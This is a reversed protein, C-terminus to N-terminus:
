SQAKQETSAGSMARNLTQKAKLRLDPARTKVNATAIIRLGTELEIGCTVLKAREARLGDREHSVDALQQRLADYDTASVFKGGGSRSRPTMEGLPKYAQGAPAFEVQEAERKLIAARCEEHTM